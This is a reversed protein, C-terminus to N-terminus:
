PSSEPTHVPADDTPLGAAALRSRLVSITSQLREVTRAVAPAPLRQHIHQPCNVDWREVTFVLAREPVADYAPDALSAVLAPDDHRIVATGWVKVRRQHVYDILFLFAHPNEALNGTSIFQRNGAFDAFALTSSDVVKIFGPPGGRYQIYPRGAASATGLYCMDLEALFSRLDDTIAKQWGAGRGRGAYSRRSGYREQVAKVSDTFVPDDNDTPM